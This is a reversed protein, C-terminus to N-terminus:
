CGMISDFGPLVLQKWAYSKKLLDKEAIFLVLVMALLVGGDHRSCYQAKM